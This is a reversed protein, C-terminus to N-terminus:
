PGRLFIAGKKFCEEYEKKFRNVSFTEWCDSIYHFVDLERGTWYIDKSSRAEGNLQIFIDASQTESELMKKMMDDFSKVQIIDM